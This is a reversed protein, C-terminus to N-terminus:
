AIVPPRHRLAPVNVLRTVPELLEQVAAPGTGTVSIVGPRQTSAFMIVPVNSLRPHMSLQKLEPEGFPEDLVVVVVGQGEDEDPAKVWSVSADGLLLVGLLDRLGRDKAVVLVRPTM